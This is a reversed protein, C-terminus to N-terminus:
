KNSIHMNILETSYMKYIEISYEPKFLFIRKKYYKLASIPYIFGTVFFYMSLINKYQFNNFYILFWIIELIYIIFFLKLTLFSYRKYNILGAANIILFITISLIFFLEISYPGKLKEILFYLYFNFVIPITMIFCSLYHFKTKAKFIEILKSYCINEYVKEHNDLVGQEIAM